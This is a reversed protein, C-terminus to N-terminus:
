ETLVDFVLKDAIENGAIGSHAPIWQLVVKSRSTLVQLNKWLETTVTDSPGQQLSQLASLSDTLFVICSPPTDRDSVIKAASSLAQLEAKYNTSSKGVPEHLTQTTGDIYRIYVGSGGNLIAKDASGDTYVHTWTHSPYSQDILELTLAKMDTPLHEDKSKLGPVTTNFEPCGNSALWIKPQLPEAEAPPM